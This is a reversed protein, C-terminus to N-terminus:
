AIRYWVDRKFLAVECNPLSELFLSLNIHTYIYIYVYKILVKWTQLHSRDWAGKSSSNSSSSSSSTIIIIIIIIIIHTPFADPRISLGSKDFMIEEPFM